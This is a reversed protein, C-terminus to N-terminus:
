NTPKVDDLSVLKVTRFLNHREKTTQSYNGNRHFRLTRNRRRPGEKWSYPSLFHSYRLDANALPWKSGCGRSCRKCGHRRGIRGGKSRLRTGRPDRTLSCPLPYHTRRTTITTSHLNVTFKHVTWSLTYLPTWLSYTRVSHRQRKLLHIPTLTNVCWTETGVPDGSCWYGPDSTSSPGGSPRLRHVWFFWVLVSLWDVDRPKSPSSELSVKM